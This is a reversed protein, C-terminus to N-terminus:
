DRAWVGGLLSLTQHFGASEEPKMLFEYSVTLMYLQLITVLKRALFHQTM